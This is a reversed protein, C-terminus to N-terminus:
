RPNFAAGMTLLLVSVERRWLDQLMELLAKGIGPWGFLYEVVPLSSLSFRLSTYMATLVNGMANPLIHGLWVQIPRLGKGKAARVSDQDLITTVRAYTLRTVQAIPRVALVLVPLVLHRDWGFGGVPLLRFGSQKYFSIELHQPLMGLFFSPTSIGVVSLLMLGLSVGCRRIAAALFAISTGFIGGVLMALLLLSISRLFFGGVVESLPKPVSYWYGTDYSGLDGRLMGECLTVTDTGAERFTQILPSVKRLRTHTAFGQLLFSPYAIALLVFVGSALRRWTSRLM